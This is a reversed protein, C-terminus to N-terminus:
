QFIQFNGLLVWLLIFVLITGFCGGGLWKAGAGAVVARLLDSM